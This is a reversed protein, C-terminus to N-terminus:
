IPNRDRIRKVTARTPEDSSPLPFDIDFCSFQGVESTVVCAAGHNAIIRECIVLGLGARGPFNAYFPSWISDLQDPNMGCGNDRVRLKLAQGGIRTSIRIEREALAKAQLANRANDVLNLLLVRLEAADLTLETVGADLELVVRAQAARAAEQWDPAMAELVNDLVTPQRRCPVPRPYDKLINLADTLEVTNREIRALRERAFDDSNRSMLIQTYGLIPTLKNKLKHFILPLVELLVDNRVAEDSASVGPRIITSQGDPKFEITKM